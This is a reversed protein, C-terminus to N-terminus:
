RLDRRMKGVPGSLASAREGGAVFESVNRGVFKSQSVAPVLYRPLAPFM